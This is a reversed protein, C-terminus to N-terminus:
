DYIKLLLVLVPHQAKILNRLFEMLNKLDSLQKMTM